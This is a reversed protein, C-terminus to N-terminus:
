SRGTISVTLAELDGLVDLIVQRGRQFAPMTTRWLGRSGGSVYAAAKLYKTANNGHDVGLHTCNDDLEKIELIKEGFLEKKLFAIADAIALAKEKASRCRKPLQHLVVKKRQTDVECISELTDRSTGLGTILRPLNVDLDITESRKQDGQVAASSRPLEDGLAQMRRLRESLICSFALEDYPKQLGKVVEIVEQVEALIKKSGM